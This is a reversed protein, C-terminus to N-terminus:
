DCVSQLSGAVAGKGAVGRQSKRLLASIETFCVERLGHTHALAPVPAALSQVQVPFVLSMGKEVGRVQEFCPWPSTTGLTGLSPM